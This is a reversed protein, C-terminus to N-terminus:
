FYRDAQFLWSDQDNGTFVLMKVKKFKNRETNKDGEEDKAEKKIEEISEDSHEVEKMKRSSGAMEPTTSTKKNVINDMYKLIVQYQQQQTDTKLNLKDLNKM